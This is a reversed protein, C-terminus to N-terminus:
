RNWSNDKPGEQTLWKPSIVHLTPIPVKRAHVSPSVGIHLGLRREETNYVHLCHAAISVAGRRLLLLPLSRAFFFVHITKSELIGFTFQWQAAQVKVICPESGSSRPAPKDRNSMLYRPCLVGSLYLKPTLRAAGSLPHPSPLIDSVGQDYLRYDIAAGDRDSRGLGDVSRDARCVIRAGL